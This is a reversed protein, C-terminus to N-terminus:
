SDTGARGRRILKDRAHANTKRGRLILRAAGEETGGRRVLRAGVRKSRLRYLLFGATAAVIATFGLAYIWDPIRNGSQVGLGNPSVSFSMDVTSGRSVPTSSDMTVLGTSTFLGVGYTAVGSGTGTITVKYEGQEPRLIWVIQPETGTGSYWAGSIESVQSGEATTGIRKGSPSTVLINAPSAVTNVAPGDCQLGRPTLAPIRCILDVVFTPFGLSFQPFLKGLVESLLEANLAGLIVTFALSGSLEPLSDIQVGIHWAVQFLRDGPTAVADLPIGREGGKALVTSGELGFSISGIRLNNAFFSVRQSPLNVTTGVLLVRNVFTFQTTETRFTVGGVKFLIISNLTVVGTSPIEGVQLTVCLENNDKNSEQVVNSADVRACVSHSGAVATWSKRFAVRYSEGPALPKVDVSDFFGGDLYLDTRTPGANSRGQNAVVVAFYVTDKARPSAPDIIISSAVLDPLNQVTITPNITIWTRDSAYESGASAEAVFTVTGVDQPDARFGVSKTGGSTSSPGVVEVRGDSYTVTLKLLAAKNLDMYIPFSEGVTFSGGYTNSGRGGRPTYVDVSLLQGTTGTLRILYHDSRQLVLRYVFDGISQQDGFAEVSDGVSVADFRASSSSPKVVPEELSRGDSLSLRVNVATGVVGYSNYAYAARTVVGRAKLDAAFTQPTNGLSGFYGIALLLIILLARSSM